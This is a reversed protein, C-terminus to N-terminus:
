IPRQREKGAIENARQFGPLADQFRGLCLLATSRGVLLGDDESSSQKIQRDCIEAVEEYRHEFLMEHTNM